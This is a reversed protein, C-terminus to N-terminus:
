SGNPSAPSQEISSSSTPTSMLPATITASQQSHSAYHHDPAFISYITHFLLHVILVLLVQRVETPLQILFTRMRFRTIHFPGSAQTAISHHHVHASAAARDRLCSHLQTVESKLQDQDRELVALSSKISTLQSNISDLRHSLHSPITPPVAEKSSSTSESRLKSNASYYDISDSRSSDPCTIQRRFRLKSRSSTQLEASAAAEKDKASQGPLAFLPKKTLHRTVTRIVYNHEYQKIDTRTLCFFKFDAM